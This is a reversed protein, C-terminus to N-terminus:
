ASAAPRLQGSGPVRRDFRNQFPLITGEDGILTELICEITMSNAISPDRRRQIPGM